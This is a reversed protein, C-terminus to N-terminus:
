KVSLRTGREGLDVFDLSGDALAKRIKENDPETIVKLYDDPITAGEKFVLPALGGNKVIAFKFHDSTIKQDPLIKVAEYMYQTIYKKRRGLTAKIKKIRKEEEDFMKEDAELTKIVIQLSELKEAIAGTLGELTDLVAQDETEEDTIFSIFDIYNQKLDYLTM